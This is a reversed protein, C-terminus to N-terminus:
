VLKELPVKLLDVHEETWELAGAVKLQESFQEKASIPGHVSRRKGQLVRAEAEASKWFHLWLLVQVEKGQRMETGNTWLKKPRGNQPNRYAYQFGFYAAPVIGDMKGLDAENEATLPSPFYVTVLVLDRLHMIMHWYPVHKWETEQITPPTIASVGAWYTGYSESEKFAHYSAPTEWETVLLVIGPREKISGWHSIYRGPAQALPRLIAAWKSGLESGDDIHTLGDIEPVEFKTWVLLYDEPRQSM